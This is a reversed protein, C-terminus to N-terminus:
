PQHLVYLCTGPVKGQYQGVIPVLQTLARQIAEDVARQTSANNYRVVQVRAKGGPFVQIKSAAVGSAKNPDTIDVLDVKERWQTVAPLDIPASCDGSPCYYATQYPGLAEKLLKAQAPCLTDLGQGGQPNGLAKDLKALLKDSIPIEREGYAGKVWVKGKRDQTVTKFAEPPAVWYSGILKQLVAVRRSDGALGIAQKKQLLSQVSQGLQGFSQQPQQIQQQGNADAQVACSSVMIAVFVAMLISVFRKM